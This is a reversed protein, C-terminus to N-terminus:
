QKTQVAVYPGFAYVLPNAAISGYWGQTYLQQYFRATSIPLVILPADAYIDGNLQQYIPARKAPDTEQVGKNILDQYKTTMEDPLGNRFAYTGGKSVYPVYWDHPDHYDELWGVISVGFLHSRNGRLFTPWPVAVPAVLFNGSAQQLGAAMIQAITQRATNGANYAMQMYFGTDMLSKGDASKLTSAQFAAKCKDADYTYWQSGDYGPMGPLTLAKSAIGEGLFVDKIYTDFDFCYNFGQRVNLDSFFDPPIGAGDLKGSGIFQSTPDVKFDFFLDTRTAQPIGMYRRLVGNPNTNGNADKYPQCAGGNAYDCTESVLTDMQVRDATSGLDIQDADGAQLAAFRTGFEAVETWVFRKISPATGHYNPNATLVIEQKPTWHDLQYPGTGMVKDHLKQNESAIGYFNQWTKCDGDWDGQAAVWKKDQAYAWNGGALSALFPGWPKDLTMTITGSANDFQVADQVTKCTAELKAAPQKKLEDPAGALSGDPKILETIDSVAAKTDPNTFFANDLIWAATDPNGVLMTRQFSFAVDEATLPDGNAFKVNPILHWVYQVGGSSTPVPDPIKDALVPAFKTPDMKDYWILGEMTNFLITGGSTEYDTAPDLTDPEGFTQFNFVTPDKSKPAAPAPTAPVETPAPPQTPQAPAATPQAPASTPQAAPAQTPVATPAPACASILMSVAALLSLVLLVNKSRFM